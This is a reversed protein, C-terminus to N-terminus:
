RIAYKSRRKDPQNEEAYYGNNKIYEKVAFRDIKGENIADELEERLWFGSELKTKDPVIECSQQVRAQLTIAFSIVMDDHTGTEAGWWIGKLKKDQRTFTLMENLTEVDNIMDMNENCWFVMDTLMMQRNEIGTRWGFKDEKREHRSDASTQRRYMNSYDMLLFAKVAWTDFNTEPCVLADNYMVALGYLQWLCDDVNKLIKGERNKGGGHFRAVQEGTINDMVHGAFFDSGEGATDFALVYPHRPEPQKFIVTDGDPSPHFKYSLKDPIKKDTKIYYFDGTTFIKDALSNLRLQIKNADFVTMGMTGWNGLTYVQYDYPSNYKYGELTRKYVDPCWKNDKYTTKLILCDFESNPLERTVYDFLWHSRSVPNFTLIIRCKVYPDRLRRELERITDITPEANVEEYWVDTLNGRKQKVKNFFKISKIDEINDVGEFKIINGNIRNEMVHDPNERVEWYDLLSFESLAGKIDAWCSAICDTKQRRLTVMYRNELITMQIAIMESAGFSKGSGSGGYFVTREHVTLMHPFFADNFLNKDLDINAETPLSVLRKSM